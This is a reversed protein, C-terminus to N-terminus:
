IMAERSYKVFPGYVGFPSYPGLSKHQVFKSKIPFWKQARRLAVVKKSGIWIDKTVEM